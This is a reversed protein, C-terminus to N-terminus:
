GNHERRVNELYSEVAERVTAIKEADAQGASWQGAVFAAFASMVDLQTGLSNKDELERILANLKVLRDEIGADEASPDDALRELLKLRRDKLLDISPASSQRRNEDRKRSWEGEKSWRAMTAKSVGIQAAVAELGMGQRVFLMEATMRESQSKSM